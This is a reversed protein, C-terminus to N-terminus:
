RTAQAWDEPTNANWVVEPPLGVAVHRLQAILDRVRLQRAALAAAAQPLIRPHYVACLPQGSATVVDTDHKVSDLLHRIGAPTLHPLDCAVVVALPSTTLSLAHIIGSLPGQGRAPDESVPWGLNKYRAPPGIWTVPACGASELCRATRVILPEGGIELLAKDRGM